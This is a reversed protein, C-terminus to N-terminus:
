LHDITQCRKEKLYRNMGAVGQLGGTHVALIRTNKSFSKSKIMDFIGYFMKGTYIPDLPINYKKQFHNIFQILDSNVKAYGGFHYDTQLAWNSKQTWTQIEKTLFDGKLASFGICTQKYNTSEILGAFTGGTGVSSCIVDFNDEQSLIEKCGKIAKANTGGEPICILSDIQSKIAKVEPMHEKLRYNPRSVFKLDMGKKHAFKLTPNEALTKSLDKGLEDGRIIGISKLGLMSCAEATAAIHNSYAGGFTLISNTRDVGMLNYKLKRFKNGSVLPHILDERKVFLKISDFTGIYQNESVYNKKFFSLNIMNNELIISLILAKTDIQYM